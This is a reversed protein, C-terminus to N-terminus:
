GGDDHLGRIVLYDHRHISFFTPDGFRLSSSHLEGGFCSAAILSCNGMEEVPYVFDLGAFGCFPRRLKREGGRIEFNKLGNVFPHLLALWVRLLIAGDGGWLYACSIRCSNQTKLWKRSTSGLFVVEVLSAM